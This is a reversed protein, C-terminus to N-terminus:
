KYLRLFYFAKCFKEQPKFVLAVEINGLGSETMVRYDFHGDNGICRFKEFEEDSVKCVVKKFSNKVWLQTDVDSGWTTLIAAGSHASALIAHGTDISEKILIYAKM